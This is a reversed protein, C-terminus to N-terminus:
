GGPGVQVVRQMELLALLLGVREGILQDRQVLNPVVGMLGGRGQQGRFM